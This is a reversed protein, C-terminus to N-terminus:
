ACYGISPTTESNEYPQNRLVTRSILTFSDKMGFIATVPFPRPYTVQVQYLVADRAGGVGSKGQNRDWAGNGNADEYPEGADCMGNGNVDTFDEPQNIDSFSTYATRSFDLTAAPAIAHVVEAVHADLGSTKAAAGEITSDRAAKQIAGELLEATYVNYGLDFLGFITILVVPALLAFEVASVGRRDRM